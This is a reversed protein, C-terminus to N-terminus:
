MCSSAALARYKPPREIKMNEISPRTRASLRKMINMKQSSTPNLEQSRILWQYSRGAAAAAALFAKMTLRTPSTPKRSPMM